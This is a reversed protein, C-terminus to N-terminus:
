NWNQDSGFGDLDFDIRSNNQKVTVTISYTEDAPTDTLSVTVTGTRAAGSDNPTVALHFNNDSGQIITFWTDDTTVAYTGDADVIVDATTGGNGSISLETTSLRIARGLQKVKYIVSSLDNSALVVSAERSYISNNAEASISYRQIGDASADTLTLWDTPQGDTYEVSATYDVTADVSFEVTGGTAAIEGSQNDIILYRGGQNIPINFAKGESVVQVTGRRSNNSPNAEIDIYLEATGTGSSPSVSAWNVSTAATWDGPVDITLPVSTQARWDVNIESQGPAIDKGLQSVSISRQIKTGPAGITLTGSREVLSPNEGSASITLTSEGVAGSAPTVEVWEPKSIVQWPADSEVAVQRNDSGTAALEVASPSVSIVAARQSVTVSWMSIENAVNRFYVTGYRIEASTTNPAATITVETDVNASGAAPSVSLWDSNSEATWNNPSILTMTRSEGRASLNSFSDTSGSTTYAEQTIYLSRMNTNGPGTFYIYCSRSTGTTNGAATITVNVEENASGSSPSVSVWSNEPLTITWDLSGVFDVSASGGQGPISISTASISSSYGSQYLTVSNLQTNEAYIYFYVYRTSSGPNDSVTLHIQGNKIIGSCGETSCTVSLYKEPVNTTIDYSYTDAKSPVSTTLSGDISFTPTVGSQTFTQYQTLTYPATEGNFSVEPAVTVTILNTRTVPENNDTATYTVETTTFASGNYGGPGSSPSVTLWKSDIGTMKWASGAAISGTTYDGYSGFQYSEPYVQLYVPSSSIKLTSPDVEEYLDQACASLLALAPLILLNRAKM